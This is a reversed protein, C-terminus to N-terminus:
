QRPELKDACDDLRRALARADEKTLGVMMEDFIDITVSESPEDLGVQLAGYNVLMYGLPQRSACEEAHLWLLVPELAMLVAERDSPLAKVMAQGNERIQITGIVREKM